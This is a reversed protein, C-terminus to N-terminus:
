RAASRDPRRGQQAPEDRVPHKRQGGCGIRFRCHQGLGPTVKNVTDEAAKIPSALMAVDARGAYLDKLGNGDGNVTLVLKLGTEQEIAAQNPIIIGRAITAAGNVRLDNAMAPNVAFPLLPAACAVAAALCVILRM